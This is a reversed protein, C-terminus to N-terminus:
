STEESRRAPDHPRNRGTRPDDEYRIVFEFPGATSALDIEQPPAPHCLKLLGLFFAPDEKAHKKTLKRAEPSNTWKRWHERWKSTQPDLKRGSGARAGGNARRGDTVHAM